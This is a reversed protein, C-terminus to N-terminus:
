ESFVKLFGLQAALAVSSCCCGTNSDLMKLLFFKSVLVILLTASMCIGALFFLFMWSNREKKHSQAKFPPGTITGGLMAMIDEVFHQTAYHKYLDFQWRFSESSCLQCPFFVHRSPNVVNLTTQLV